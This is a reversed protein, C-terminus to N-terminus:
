LIFKRCDELEPIYDGLRSSRVEDLRDNFKFFKRLSELNCQPNSSYYDYLSDICSRCSKANSLYMATKKCKEMSAVVLDPRPHNFASQADLYNIQLYVSTFPFEQDLFEFLQHLNTVNYIGPVTNISLSHGMGQILKANKIIKEWKSGWRWYDNVKGYGDISFSFNMNSFNTSLNIFEETLVMGNTCMSLEFDVMNRRVCEQMFEIVEPMITPEGGQFYVRHKSSLSDINIEKISIYGSHDIKNSGDLPTINFKTFEREIQDSWQPTCGRCKINCRNGIFMEYYYPDTIKDLDDISELDIMSAWDLTEFQRYSEINKSEYEYCTDCHIPNPKGALMRNRLESFHPDNKWDKLEKISTIPAKSRGCATLTGFVNHRNIWPYLCFSKNQKQYEQWYQFKKVNQNQRFVTNFGLSELHCMAKYTGLLLKWHSWQSKHQDLMVVQDFQKALIPLHGLPIDVITTHYYGDFEPVYSFDTVLGHNVTHNKHALETVCHDTDSSNNGLVLIKLMM